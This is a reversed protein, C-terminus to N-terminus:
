RKGIGPGHHAIDDQTLDGSDEQLLLKRVAIITALENTDASPKAISFVMQKYIDSPLWMALEWSLKNARKYDDESSNITLSRALSFYEAVKEAREKTKTEWALETIYDVKDKEFYLKIREAIATEFILFLLSLLFTTLISSGLIIKFTQKM